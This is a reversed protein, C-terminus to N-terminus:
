CHNVLQQSHRLSNHSSSSSQSIITFLKDNDHLLSTIGGATNALTSFIIRAPVSKTEKAATKLTIM